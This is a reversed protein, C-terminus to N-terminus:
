SGGFAAALGSFIPEVLWIGAVAIAAGILMQRGKEKTQQNSGSYGMMILGAVGVISLLPTGVTKLFGMVLGLADGTKNEADQFGAGQQATYEPELTTTEASGFPAAMMAILLMSFISLTKANYM